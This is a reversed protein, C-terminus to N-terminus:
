SFFNLFYVYMRKNGWQGDNIDIFFGLRAIERAYERRYRLVGMRSDNGDNLLDQVTKYIVTIYM